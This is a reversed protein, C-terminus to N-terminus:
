VVTGGQGVRRSMSIKREPKTKRGDSANILMVRISIDYFYDFGM